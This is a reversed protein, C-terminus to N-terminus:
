GLEGPEIQEDQIVQADRRKRGTFATVEQFEHVVAALEAGGHDGALQGDLGPVAGHAIGREGIGDQVPENVVGVFDDQFSFRHSLDLGSQWLAAVRICQFRIGSGSGPGM